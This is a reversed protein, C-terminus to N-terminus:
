LMSIIQFIREFWFRFLLSYSNIAVFMNASCTFFYYLILSKRAYTCTDNNKISSVDCYFLFPYIIDWNCLFIISKKWINKRMCFSSKLSYMNTVNTFHSTNKISNCTVSQCAHCTLILLLQIMSLRSMFFYPLNWVKPM